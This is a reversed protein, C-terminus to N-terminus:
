KIEIDNMRKLYKGGLHETNLFVKLMRKAKLFSTTRGGFAIANVNNHERAKKIEKVSHGLVCFIGKQKNMAINMGVGSGCVAILKADKYDEFIKAMLLAYKSFDDQAYENFAGVDVIDTEIKQIYNKIKEKLKFGAHDCGLIIM